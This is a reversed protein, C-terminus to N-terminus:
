YEIAKPLKKAQDIWKTIVKVSPPRRVIKKKGAAELIKAHLGAPDRKALDPVDKVGAEELLDSYEESVGKIRMLDSDQIWELILKDSIGTKKVLEERGSPTRGKELLDKTTKIGLSNLKEAYVKGIGEIKIIPVIKISESM